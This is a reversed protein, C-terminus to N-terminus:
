AAIAAVVQPLQQLRLPLSCSPLFTGRAAGVVACCRRVTQAGFHKFCPLCCATAMAAPRQVSSCRPAAVPLQQHWRRLHLPPLRLPQLSPRRTRAAAPLASVLLLQEHLMQATAARGRGLAVAAVQLLLLLLRWLLRRQHPQLSTRSPPRVLQREHRRASLTPQLQRLVLRLLVSM